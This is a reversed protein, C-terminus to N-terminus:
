RALFDIVDDNSRASEGGSEYNELFFFNKHNKHTGYCDLLLLMYRPQVGISGRVALIHSFDVIYSERRVAKMFRGEVEVERILIYM